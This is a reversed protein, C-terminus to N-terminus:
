LLERRLFDWVDGRPAFHLEFAPVAEVLGTVFGLVREVDEPFDVPWSTQSILERLARSPDLPTLRHQEGHRLLLIADLDASAPRSRWFPLSVVRFGSGDRTVAALEDTIAADAALISLTTKGAGSPGCALLGRDGSVLAATHLVVGDRCLLPLLTRLLNDLPYMASPGEVNACRAVLDVSARSTHFRAEFGRSTVSVAPTEPRVALPSTLGQPLPQGTCEYRISFVPARDAASHRFASYRRELLRIWGTDRSEFAFPIRGFLYTAKGTVDRAAVPM